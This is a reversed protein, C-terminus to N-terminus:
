SASSKPQRLLEPLNGAIDENMELRHFPKVSTESDHRQPVQEGGEIDIDRNRKL